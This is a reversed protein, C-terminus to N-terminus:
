RAGPSGQTLACILGVVKGIGYLKSPFPEREDGPPTLCEQLQAVGLADVVDHQAPDLSAEVDILHPQQSGM